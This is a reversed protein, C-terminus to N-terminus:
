EIDGPLTYPLIRDLKIEDKDQVIKAHKEIFDFLKKPTIGAREVKHFVLIDKGNKLKKGTVGVARPKGRHREKLGNLILRKKQPGCEELAIALRLEFQDPAANFAEEAEKNELLIAQLDTRRLAMNYDRVRARMMRRTEARKYGRGM